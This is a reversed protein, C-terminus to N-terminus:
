DSYPRIAVISKKEIDITFVVKDGPELGDLLTVPRVKYSMDMSAMFGEIEEHNLYIREKNRRMKLVTGVGEVQKRQEGPEPVKVAFGALNTVIAQTLEDQLAFVESLDRDYRDAWLHHGTTAEVLQATVRVRQGSKRVSGEVVYRVGLEEGVQQIKVAKGKYTFVSKRSVVDIDELQALSTILDETMGDAFSDQEPDGSMNDFPLVAISIKGTVPQATTTEPASTAAVDTSPAPSPRNLQWLVFGGAGVFLVVVAALAVWKWQPAGAGEVEKSAAVPKSSVESPELSVRFVAVPHTINKVEQKGMFEYALDLKNKLQEYVGGSICIGGPEALAELRAAINVGEGFIDDGKVIVDGINIGIRFQMKRDDSLATNRAKVLGQIEIACQVAEYASVFEALLSDGASGVVRGQHMRILNDIDERYSSLTELTGKEDEGMLRSYGVVDAHLIAALKRQTHESKM